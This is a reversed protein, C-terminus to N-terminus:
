EEVPVYIRAHKESYVLTRVAANTVSLSQPVGTFGGDPDLPYAYVKNKGGIVLRPSPRSAVVPISQFTAQLVSATQPLLTPFGDAQRCMFLFYSDHRAGYIVPQSPHAGIHCTAVNPIQMFGLKARRNETDWVAPGYYGSFIVARRTPAVFGWGTPLSCYARLFQVKPLVQLDFKNLGYGDLSGEIPVRTPIPMGDEGLDFCGISAGDCDKIDNETFLNPVFIRDARPTLAIHGESQGLAYQPGRAFTGAPVPPSVDIKLIVLHDLDSGAAKKEAPAASAPVDQWVYLLPLSPHFALGLPQTPANALSDAKPLTIRAAPDALPQGAADLRYLSLHNQATAQGVALLGLGDHVASCTAAPAKIFVMSRVLDAAAGACAPRMALMVYLSLLLGPKLLRHIM